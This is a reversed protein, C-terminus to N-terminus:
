RAYVGLLARWINARTFEALVRARGAEGHRSRLAPDDLYCRLARELARADRPPVLLGTGEHVVADVCGEVQTAVVPVRMAAAELPVNPFGERYTPLTLVDMAAYAPAVADLEGTLHVRPAAELRARVEAPVPDGAEFPGVLLLHPELPHTALARWAEELEVIGKDRVLRGVFGILPRGEAIGLQDRLERGSAVAGDPDFTGRADVGNGGPGLVVGGSSPLVGHERAVERLSRSQCVVEHALTCSVRETARLTWRLAGQRGVFPLGRMHYLVRRVGALRGALVGLLGGKPTQAHVVDPRIRAFLRLLGELAVLDALPDVSRSMPVAHAAVGETKAFTDLLRGPSCAVHTEYGRERMFSPQGRLFRLSEAVTLVHVLRKM